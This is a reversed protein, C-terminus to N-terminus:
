YNENVWVATRFLNLLINQVIPHNARIQHSLLANIPHKQQGFKFTRPAAFAAQVTCFIM